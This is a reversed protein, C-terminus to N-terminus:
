IEVQKRARDEPVWGLRWRTLASAGVLALGFAVAAEPQTLRLLAYGLLSVGILPLAWARRRAASM